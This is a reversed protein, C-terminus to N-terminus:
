LYRIRKGNEIFIGYGDYPSVFGDSISYKGWNRNYGAEYGINRLTEFDRQRMKESAEPFKEFYTKVPDTDNVLSMCFALRRLRKLHQIKKRSMNNKYSIEGAPMGADIYARECKSYKVYVLGADKLDKIDRQLTRKGIDGLAFSIDGYTVKDFAMFVDYLVLQRETQKVEALEKM